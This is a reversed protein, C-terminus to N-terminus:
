KQAEAALEARRRKIEEQFEESIRRERELRQEPTMDKTENYIQTRVKRLWRQPNFGPIPKIKSWDFKTM